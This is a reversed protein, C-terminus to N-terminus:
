FVDLCDALLWGHMDCVLVIACQSAQYHQLLQMDM